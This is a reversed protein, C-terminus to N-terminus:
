APRKLPRPPLLVARLRRQQEPGIRPARAAQERAWAEIRATQEAARQERREEPTM